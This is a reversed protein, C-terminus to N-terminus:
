LLYRRIRKEHSQQMISPRGSHRKPAPLADEFLVKNDHRKLKGAIKKGSLGVFHWALIKAKEKVDFQMGRPM